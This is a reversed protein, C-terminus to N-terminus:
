NTSTKLQNCVRKLKLNARHLDLLDPYQLLEKISLEKNNRFILRAIYYDPMNDVHKKQNERHKLNANIAGVTKIKRRYKCKENIKERNKKSYENNRKIHYEKKDQTMQAYLTTGNNKANLRRDKMLKSKHAEKCSICKSTLVVGHNLKIKAKDLRFYDTNNPLVKKCETCQKEVRTDKKIEPKILYHEIEMGKYEFRNANEKCHRQLTSRPIGSQLSANILGEYKVGDIIIIKIRVAAM